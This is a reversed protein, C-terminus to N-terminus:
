KHHHYPINPSTWRCHEGCITPSKKRMVIAIQQIQHHNLEHNPTGFNPFDLFIYPHWRSKASQVMMLPLFRFDIWCFTSIDVCLVHEMSFFISKVMWCSSRIAILGGSTRLDEQVGDGSVWIKMHLHPEFHWIRFHDRQKNLWSLTQCGIDSGRGM